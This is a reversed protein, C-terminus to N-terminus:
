IRTITLLTGEDAKDVKTQDVQVQIQNAADGPILGAYRACDIFYKACLNDPDILRVRRSTVRVLFRAPDGKKRGTAEVSEDQVPREPIPSPPASAVHANIASRINRLNYANVQEQTFRAM